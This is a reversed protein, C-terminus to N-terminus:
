LATLVSDSPKLITRVTQGGGFSIGHALTPFAGRRHTTNKAKASLKSAAKRLAVLADDLAAEWGAADRPMGLLVGVIYGLRDLLLHTSRPGTDGCSPSPVSFPVCRGDWPIRKMRYDNVLEALSFVRQPLEAVRNGIWGPKTVNGDSPLCYDVVIADMTAEYRRKKAVHKDDTGSAAQQASRKKRRRAASRRSGRGQRGFSAKPTAKVVHGAEAPHLKNEEDGSYDCEVESLPGEFLGDLERAQFYEEISLNKSM